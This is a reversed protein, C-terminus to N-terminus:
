SLLTRKSRFTIVALAVGALMVIGGLLEGASPQEGQLLWATILGVVPILLAFPVVSAANNRALLTNWIGYGVFSAMIVTYLTSLIAAPSIFAVFGAGIAEPGDFILSLAFAPLPVVLGSWVVLSLGSAAKAQRSLINGVAWSLAGLLTLVFPIWPAGGGRSFAVVILGAAGIAIGISQRLSPRERLVLVGILVTFIVQTQLVLSALGPPMGAELALYLFSFQGLSLFAGIALTKRWGIGPRPIFFVAPFAVLVFRIALFLLPPIGKMGVDITVFNLGWIVVVILALLRDRLPM